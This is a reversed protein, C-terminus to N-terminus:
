QVVVFEIRRNRARGEATDNAAVPRAEGYGVSVLREAAIGKAALYASVARARAESLRQNDADSGENDTHGSVEIVLGPCRAVIEALADLLPASSGDLRASASRFNINGTRSLIEFRGACAAADFDGEAELAADAPRAPAPAAAPAAGARALVLDFSVTGFPVVDVGAAEELKRVGEDLAFDAAPVIIPLSSTVSVRTEDILIVTVDAEREQVVGHMEIQYPLRIVKRRDRQLDAILAPDIKATIVAEPFRFTEFFLFRMRVNRLDIRTDISDLFVRLEAQGTADVSGSFTAFRSSEAVIENKVSLLNFASAEPVVVWGPAFPGDQAM